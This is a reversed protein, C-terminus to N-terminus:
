KKQFRYGVALKGYPFIEIDGTGRGVGLALEFNVGQASLWKFGGVFGVGAGAESIAGLFGGIYFRDGGLKPTMYYKGVLTGGFGGDGGLLGLEIGTNKKVIVEGSIQAVGFLLTIPNVQLDVQAQSSTHIGLILFISLFFNKM